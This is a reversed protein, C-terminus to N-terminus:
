AGDKEEAALEGRTPHRRYWWINDDLLDTKVTEPGGDAIWNDMEDDIEDLESNMMWVPPSFNHGPAAEIIISGQDQLWDTVVAPVERYFVKSGVLSDFPKGKKGKQYASHRRLKRVYERAELAADLPDRFFFSYVQQRNFYINCDGGKRVENGSLNSSKLYNESKIEIDVLPRHGDFGTPEEEEDDGDLLVYFSNDNGGTHKHEGHLIPVEENGVLVTGFVQWKEKPGAGWQETHTMGAVIDRLSKAAEESIDLDAAPNNLWWDIAEDVTPDGDMLQAVRGDPLLVETPNHLDPPLSM